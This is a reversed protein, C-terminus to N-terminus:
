SHSGTDVLIYKRWNLVRSVDFRVHSMCCHIEPWPRAMALNAQRPEGQIHGAVPRFNLRFHNLGWVDLAIKRMSKSTLFVFIIDHKYEAGRLLTRGDSVQSDRSQARSTLMGMHISCQRPYDRTQNVDGRNICARHVIKNSLSSGKAALLNILFRHGLVQHTIKM